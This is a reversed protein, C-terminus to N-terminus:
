ETYVHHITVQGTESDVYRSRAGGDWSVTTTVAQEQPNLLTLAAGNKEVALGEPRAETITLSKEPYAAPVAGRNLWWGTAMVFTLSACVVALRWAAPEFREPEPIEEYEVIAGAALGLRINANMEAALSEWNVDEPMSGAGDRLELRAEELADAEARCSACHALHLFVKARQSFKLDGGSFLALEMKSPHKM